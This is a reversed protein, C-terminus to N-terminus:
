PYVAGSYFAALFPLFLLYFGIVAIGIQQRFLAKQKKGLCTAKEELVSNNKDSYSLSSISVL